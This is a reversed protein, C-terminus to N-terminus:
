ELMKKAVSMRLSFWPRAAAFLATISPKTTLMMTTAM